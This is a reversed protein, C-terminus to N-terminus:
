TARSAAIRNQQAEAALAAPDMESPLDTGARIRMQRAIAPIDADMPLRGGQQLLKLFEELPFGLRDCMDVFVALVQPDLVTADFDKNLTITPAGAKEIGLYWAHIELASNVADEIGQAATALTSNEATADLRKADATEAARTDTVLFSMGLQGMQKLKEAIGKELQDMSTGEVETLRYDSGQTLQIGVGPGIKLATPTGTVPDPTLEGIVTPQPFAAWERYFTLNSSQRWHSLNAWAVGLLPITATMPAETRGTYAIAVPLRQAIQGLRNKFAGSGIPVYSDRQDLEGRVEFLTWTAQYGDPTLLLRLVRFRQVTTLGYEGDDVDARESLVILTPRQENNITAFRWNIIQSRAYRAWMPRIGLAQEADFRERAIEPVPPHDCFLLGLGDRLSAETFRKIFVPGATGGGDINPWHTEFTSESQNWTVQPPKSFLMGVAASLTRGLGEFVTECTSRIRYTEPEEDKWKRIYHKEQANAQMQETGALLDHVLALSPAAATVEPRVFSPLNAPSNPTDAM